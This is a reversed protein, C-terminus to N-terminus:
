GTFPKLLPYLKPGWAWSIFLISSTLFIFCELAALRRKLSRADDMMTITNLLAHAIDQRTNAMLRDRIPQDLHYETQPYQSPQLGLEDRLIEKGLYFNLQAQKRGRPAMSLFAALRMRENEANYDNM